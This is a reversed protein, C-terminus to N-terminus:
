QTCSGSTSGMTCAVWQVRQPTITTSTDNVAEIDAMSVTTSPFWPPAFNSRATFRRDFYVNSTTVSINNVSNEIRGGVNTWTNVSHSGTAITGTSCTTCSSIAAISADTELNAGNVTPNMIFNGTNTYLGLVQNMNQVTPILTDAPDGACCTSNVWQSQTTTVPETAYILNGTQTINGNATVTIMANNQVAAGWSPGTISMNGDVYLMTSLTAPSTTTPPNILNQPVGTITQNTTSGPTTTTSTTSTILSSVSTTTSNASYSSVTTVNTSPDMTITTYTTPTTTVTTTTTITPPYCATCGRGSCCGHPYTTNPASSNTTTSTGAATQAITYVQCSASTCQSSTPYTSSSYTGSTAAALTITTSVTGSTGGGEVYIGGATIQGAANTNMTCTAGSCTYPLYVGSTAGTTPYPTQSVNRLVANMQANTPALPPNSSPEGCVNGNNEGCGMGDLVAWRQSFDNQPLSVAAANQNYGSEFTPAITTTGNNYSYGPSTSTCSTGGSSNSYTWSFNAGTQSIPDTFTYSGGSGFDWEGNAYMPGTMTGYVLAGGCAPYNNIFAGFASFAVTTTATGPVASVSVIISGNETVTANETGTASGVTTLVYNFLYQYATPSGMSNTATITPSGSALSVSVNSVYFSEAWSSAAQGANLSFKSGYTSSIYTQVTSALSTPSSIPPISFTGPVGASLQSEIAQRAINLGSDAAYFSGRYNSYYGNIMLDSSSSLVAALGVVSMLFLLLLTIVLAVGRENTRAGARVAAKM